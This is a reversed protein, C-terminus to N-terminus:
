VLHQWQNGGQFLKAFAWFYGLMLEQQSKATILEFPLLM